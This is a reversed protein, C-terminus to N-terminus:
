NCTEPPLVYTRSSYKLSLERESSCEIYGQKNLEDEISLNIQWGYAFTVFFLGGLIIIVFKPMWRLCRGTVFVILALLSAVILTYSIALLSADNLASYVKVVNPLEKPVFLNQPALLFVLVSLVVCSALFLGSRLRNIKM